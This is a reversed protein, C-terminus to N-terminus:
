GGNELNRKTRAIARVLSEGAGEAVLEAHRRISRTPLPVGTVKDQQLWDSHVGGVEVVEFRGAEFGKRRHQKGAQLFGVGIAAVGGDRRESLLEIGMEAMDRSLFAIDGVADAGMDVALRLYEAIYGRGFDGIGTIQRRIKGCELKGALTVDDKGVAAM